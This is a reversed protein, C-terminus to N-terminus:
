KTREWIYVTIYPQVISVSEQPANNTAWNVRNCWNSGQEERVWKNTTGDKTNADIYVSQPLQAVSLTQTKNGGTKGAVNFDTDKTDVGILTRGVAIREWTGFGLLESPNTGKTINFYLSGVPYLAKKSELIANNITTTLSDLITKYANSFDNTSLGKGSVKTVYNDLSSNIANVKEDVYTQEAKNDVENIKQQLSFMDYNKYAM